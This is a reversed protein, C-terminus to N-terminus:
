QKLNLRLLLASTDLHGLGQQQLEQYFQDVLHTVPLSSGNRQAEELCINLDKHMWNVAFGYDFHGAIMNQHRNQLQWSSAAGQGIIRMVQAVDLGSNHAFQVGEALAQILGAVCIQNVMKAKQGMGCHGVREIHRTYPATIREVADFDEPSCGVMISLQGNIAGQQGGSVPADAFRLGLQHCTQHMSEALHASTTTHDIILTSPALAHLLTDPGQLLGAVDEDKGVCLIVTEANQVAELATKCAKGPYDRQWNLAKAHSRNYVNLCHGQQALHGAMPYGMNGLGIFAINTM